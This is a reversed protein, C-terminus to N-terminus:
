IQKQGHKIKGQYEWNSLGFDAYYPSDKWRKPHAPKNNITTEFVYWQDDEMM